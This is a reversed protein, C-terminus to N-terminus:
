SPIELISLFMKEGGPESNPRKESAASLMLFLVHTKSVLCDSGSQTHDRHTKLFDLGGPVEQSLSIYLAHYGMHFASCM